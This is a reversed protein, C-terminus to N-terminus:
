SGESLVEDVVARVRDITLPKTLVPRGTDTIFGQTAVSMTDGTMFVVRSALTSDHTLLWQWVDPGGIDPLRVDLMVLDYRSAGLKQMAITGNPAEEVIHGLAGLVETLISRLREEDDVVLVRAQRGGAAVASHPMATVTSREGGLPLRVTFRAGRGSVNDAVMGGGHAEVIGISLSLGLGTGEGAGKTTFFPDFIRGLHDAPIGPGDDEVQVIIEGGHRLSRVTLTGTGADEKMAHTANTYLNLLVQQLQHGDAMIPPLEALDAAVRIKSAEFDPAQLSLTTRIVENVDTPRREPPKRRAFVLLDRIIRSARDCEEEMADMRRRVPDPLGQQRKMLQVSLQITSLPNNLEHAMGSLLTGLAKLKDAQILQAQTDQLHQLSEQLETYLHAKELALATHRAITGLLAADEDTFPREARYYAGLIGIPEQRVGLPVAIASRVDHERLVPPATFRTDRAFDEVQITRRMLFAYGAVSEHSPPDDRWGFGAAPRLEGTKADALFLTVFDAGALTHTVRVTAAHIAGEGTAELLREALEQFAADRATKAALASVRAELARRRTVQHLALVTVALAFGALRFVGAVPWPLGDLIATFSVVAQWALGLAVAAIV